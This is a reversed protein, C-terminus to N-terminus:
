SLTWTRCPSPVLPPRFMSRVIGDDDGGASRLNRLQELLLELDAAPQHDRDAGILARLFQDPDDANRVSFIAAFVDGIDTEHGQNAIFSPQRSLRPARASRAARQPRDTGDSSVSTRFRASAASGNGEISFASRLGSSSRIPSARMTSSPSAVCPVMAFEVPHAFADRALEDDLLSKAEDGDLRVPRIGGADIMIHPMELIRRRLPGGKRAKRGPHPSVGLHAIEDAPQALVVPRHLLVLADGKVAEIEVAEVIRDARNQVIEVLDIRFRGLDGALAIAAQRRPLAIGRGVTM